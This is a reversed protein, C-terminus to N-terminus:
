KRKERTKVIVTVLIVVLFLLGFLLGFPRAHPKPEELALTDLEKKEDLYKQLSEADKAMERDNKYIALYKKNVEEGRATDGTSLYISRLSLLVDAYYGGSGAAIAKEDIKFLAELYKSNLEEYLAKAKDYERAAMYSQALLCKLAATHSDEPAEKLWGEVFERLRPDNLRFAREASLKVYLSAPQRTQPLNSLSRLAKRAGDFDGGKTLAYGQSVTLCEADYGTGKLRFQPEGHDKLLRQSEQFAAAAKKLDEKEALADEQVEGLWALNLVLQERLRGDPETELRKRIAENAKELADLCAKRDEKSNTQRYRLKAVEGMETLWRVQRGPDEKSLDVLERLAQRSVEFNGSSNALGVVDSLALARSPSEPHESAVTLLRQLWDQRWQAKQEPTTEKKARISAASERYAGVVASVADPEAALALLGPCSLVLLVALSARSALGVTMARRDDRPGSTLCLVPIEEL